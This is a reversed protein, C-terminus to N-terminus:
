EDPMGAAQWGEFSKPSGAREHAAQKEAESKANAEQRRAARHRAQEAEFAARDKEIRKQKAAAEKEAKQAALRDGEAKRKELYRRYAAEKKASEATAQQIRVSIAGLADEPYGRKGFPDVAILSPDGFKEVLAEGAPYILGVKAGLEGIPILKVPTQDPPTKRAPM